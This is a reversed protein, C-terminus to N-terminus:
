SASPLGLNDATLGRQSDVSHVLLVTKSEAAHVTALRATPMGVLDGDRTQAERCYFKM